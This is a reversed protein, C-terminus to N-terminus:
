DKDKDKIVVSTNSHLGKRDCDCCCSIATRVVLGFIHFAQLLKAFGFAALARSTREFRHLLTVQHFVETEGM